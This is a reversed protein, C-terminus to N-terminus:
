DAGHVVKGSTGRTGQHEEEPMNPASFMPLSTATEISGAGFIETLVAGVQKQLAEVEPDSWFARKLARVDRIRQRINDISSQIQRPTFVSTPM